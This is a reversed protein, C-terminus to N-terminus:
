DPIDDGPLGTSPTSEEGGGSQVLTGKSDYLRGAGDMQCVRSSGFRARLAKPIAIDRHEGVHTPVATPSVQIIQGAFLGSTRAPAGTRHCITTQGSEANTASPTALLGVSGVLLLTRGIM